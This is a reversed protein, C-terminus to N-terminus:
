GAATVADFAPERARDRQNQERKERACERTEAVGSSNFSVESSFGAIGEATSLMRGALDRTIQRIADTLLRWREGTKIPTIGSQMIDAVSSM